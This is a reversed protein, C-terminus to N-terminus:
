SFLSLSLSSGNKKEKEKKGGKKRKKKKKGKRRRNKILQTFLYRVQRFHEAFAFVFAFSLSPFSLFFGRRSHEHSVFYRIAHDTM